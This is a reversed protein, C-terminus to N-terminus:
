TSGKASARVEINSQWPTGGSDIVRLMARLAVLTKGSGVEGQLLRNMPHPQALDHELEAGVERQGATLEFPLRADFAALLGGGGTRAQGGLERLAARRRALVLQTVLAEEFRFRRQAAGVQQYDDPSHVWELATRRDVLKQADRLDEPLLDPVDDLVTLAFAIARQLDWSEVGKTAPYIPFLGKLRDVALRATDAEDTANFMVMEPNTLQWEDRFRGVKGTFVGEEGVRLRRQQWEATHKHKAFFGMKLSPGNTALLVDVRYATRGSRRDRYTNLDCRAVRGVVTLQQGPELVAVESLEGTKLYRRPFHELLDGVTRLGLKEIKDRKKSDGLVTAVPSDPTIM